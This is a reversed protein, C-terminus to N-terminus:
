PSPPPETRARDFVRRLYHDMVAAQFAPEDLIKKFIDASWKM